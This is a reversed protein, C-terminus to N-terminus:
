DIFHNVASLGGSDFGCGGDGEGEGGDDVAEQIDCGRRIGLRLGVGM